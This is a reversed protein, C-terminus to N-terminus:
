SPWCHFTPAISASPKVVVNLLRTCIDTANTHCLSHNISVPLPPKYLWIFWQKSQLKLSIGPSSRCLISNMPTLSERTLLHRPLIMVGCPIGSSCAHRTTVLQNHRNRQAPDGVKWIELRHADIHDLTNENKKKIADKLHDVTKSLPVDVSFRNAKDLGLIWCNLSIEVAMPRSEATGSAVDFKLFAGASQRRRSHAQACVPLSRPFRRILIMPSTSALTLNENEIRDRMIEGM